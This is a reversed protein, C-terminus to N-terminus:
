RLDTFIQEQGVAPDFGREDKMLPLLKGTERGKMQELTGVALLSQPVVEPGVRFEGAPQADPQNQLARGPTGILVPPLPQTIVGNSERLRVRLADAQEFVDAGLIFALAALHHDTA